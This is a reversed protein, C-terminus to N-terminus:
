ITRETMPYFQIALQYVEKKKGNKFLAEMKQRFERIIEKAEHIKELDVGVTISSFDRLNIDINELKAKGMELTELHSDRLAQSKVDEPTRIKPYAKKLNGSKDEIVLGCIKLNELVEAAREKSIGLSKSIESESPTFDDLEFLTDVVFHEWEAIVKYHSENLIYREDVPSIKINDIKNRTSYMSELFLTREEPSLNLKSVISISDKRTLVRTGKLIKSLSSADIDLDRAFARLSYSPNAKQKQLLSEKLKTIYFCRNSEMSKLETNNRFHPSMTLEMESQNTNNGTM